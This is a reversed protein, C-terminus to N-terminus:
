RRGHLHTAQVAHQREGYGARDPHRGPGGGALRHGQHARRGHQRRQRLWRAMWCAAASRAASPWRACRRPMWPRPSRPISPKLRRCCRWARSEIGIRRALDIANQAIDRKDALTPYINIAADSLLLPRPHGPVDLVFAHSLRRESRLGLDKDLVAHLLEDTHLSGKMLAEAHGARVQAVALSASAHSHPTDIIQLASIDAHAAEALARIRAMPGVLLPEILGEHWAEIAGDLAESSCPHVVAVRLPPHRKAVSLLRGYGVHAQVMVQPLDPAQMRLKLRPASVEVEGRLLAEGRQNSCACALTLHKHRAERATVTVQATLTDGPRAPALFDFHQRVFLTGPGPLRTGLVASILAVAWQGHAIVGHMPSAAAYDTDLHAPNLDGTVSAFARIDDLDLARTLEAHDGIAIEDFLRNELM